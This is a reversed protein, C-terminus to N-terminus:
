EDERVTLELEDMTRNSSGTREPRVQVNNLTFSAVLAMDDRDLDFATEEPYLFFSGSVPIPDDLAERLKAQYELLELFGTQSRQALRIVQVTYTDEALGVGGPRMMVPQVYTCPRDFGEHIDKTTPPEGFLAEVWGSVARIVDVITRM